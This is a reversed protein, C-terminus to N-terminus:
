PMRVKAAWVCLNCWGRNSFCRQCSIPGLSTSGLHPPQRAELAMGTLEIQPALDSTSGAECDLFSFPDRREWSAMVLGGTGGVVSVAVCATGCTRGQQSGYGWGGCRSGHFPFQLATGRSHGLLLSSYPFYHVWITASMAPICGGTPAGPCAEVRSQWQCCEATSLGTLFKSSTYPFFFFGDYHASLFVMIM